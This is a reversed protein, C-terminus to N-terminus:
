SKNEYKFDTIIKYNGGGLSSVTILLFERSNSGKMRGGLDHSSISPKLRGIIAKSVNTMM